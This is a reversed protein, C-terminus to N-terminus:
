QLRIHLSLCQWLDRCIIQLSFLLSTLIFPLKRGKTEICSKKNKLTTVIYMLKRQIRKCRQLSTIIVNLTTNNPNTVRVNRCRTKTHRKQKVTQKAKSRFQIVIYKWLELGMLFSRLYRQHESVSACSTATVGKPRSRSRLRKPAAM